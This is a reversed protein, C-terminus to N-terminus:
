DEDKYRRHTALRYGYSLVAITGVIFGDIWLDGHVTQQFYKGATQYTCAQGADAEQQTCNYIKVHSGDATVNTYLTYGVLVFTVITGTLWWGVAYLLYSAPHIDDREPWVQMAM